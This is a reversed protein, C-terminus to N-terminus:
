GAPLAVRERRPPSQPLEPFAEALSLVSGCGASDYGPLANVARQFERSRLTDLIRLMMPADLLKAHCVFFYRESAVPLFDLEFRRAAPEVGLGADAMGSAVYAAVAAHTFECNDYGLIGRGDLQERVQGHKHEAEKSHQAGARHSGRQLLGPM